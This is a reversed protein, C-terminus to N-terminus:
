FHTKYQSPEDAYQRLWARGVPRDERLRQCRPANWSFYFPMETKKQTSRHATTSAAFSSSQKRVHWCPLNVLAVLYQRLFIWRFEVDQLCRHTRCNVRIHAVIEPIHYDAIYVDTLVTLTELMCTICLWTSSWIIIKVKPPLITAWPWCIRCQWLFVARTAAPSCWRVQQFYWSCFHVVILVLIPLWIFLSFNRMLQTASLWSLSEFDIICTLVSFLNVQLPGPQNVITTMYCVHCQVHCWTKTPSKRDAVPISQQHNEQTDCWKVRRKRTGQNNLVLQLGHQATLYCEVGLRQVATAFPM